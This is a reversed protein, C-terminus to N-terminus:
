FRVQIRATLWHQPQLIGGIDYYRRNTMNNCCVELHLLRSDWAYDYYIKGDLLVVIGYTEIEGERNQFSGNRERVSVQWCAGFGRWITHDLTLTAHHRLYDLAYKSLM